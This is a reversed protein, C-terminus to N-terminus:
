FWKRWVHDCRNCKYATSLALKAGAMGIAFLGAIPHGGGRSLNYSASGREMSTMHDGAVGTGSCNNKPCDM